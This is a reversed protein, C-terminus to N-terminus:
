KCAPDKPVQICYVAWMGRARELSIEITKARSSEEDDPLSKYKKDIEALRKDVYRKAETVEKQAQKIEESTKTDVKDIAEKFDNDKTDNGQLEQIKEDKQTKETELQAIKAKQDSYSDWAIYGGAVVLACLVIAVANEKLKTFM